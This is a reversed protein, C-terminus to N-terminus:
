IRAIIKFINIIQWYFCFFAEVIFIILGFSEDRVFRLIKQGSNCNFLYTSGPGSFLGSFDTPCQDILKNGLYMFQGYRTLLLLKWKMSFTFKKFMSWKWTQTDNSKNDDINDIQIHVSKKWIHNDLFLQKFELFLSIENMKMNSIRRLILVLKMKLYQRTM